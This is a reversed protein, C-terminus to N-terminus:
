GTQTATPYELGCYEAGFISILLHIPTQLRTQAAAPGVRSEAAPLRGSTAGTTSGKRIGGREVPTAPGPYFHKSFAQVAENESSICFWL